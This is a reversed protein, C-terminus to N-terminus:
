GIGRCHALPREIEDDETASMTGARGEESMPLNVRACLQTTPVHAHLAAQIYRRDLSLLTHLHSRQKLALPKGSQARIEGAARRDTYM